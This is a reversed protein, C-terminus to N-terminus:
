RGGGAGLRAVPRDSIPVAPIGVACVFDPLDQIVAAGAGVVTWSGVRAGPVVSAGVGVLSGRGVAVNGALHAGPSIHVFDGIVCDHDVTAATNVIVHAGIRAGPNIVANAMVVTGPGITVDRGIQASPHVATAFQVGAATLEDGLRQRTENGGIAVILHWQGDARARLDQISGLVEYGAVLTGTLESQDDVFGVIRYSGSRRELVDAIVRGHGGAGYIVVSEAHVM